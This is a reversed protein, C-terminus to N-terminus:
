CGTKSTNVSPNMERLSKWSDSNTVLQYLNYFINSSLGVIKGCYILSVISNIFWACFFGFLFVLISNKPLNKRFILLLVLIGILIFYAGARINLGLCLFLVGLFLDIHKRTKSWLVMFIFGFVGFALGFNETLLTGIFPRWFFFILLTFLAGALNGWSDKIFLISIAAILAILATQITLMVQLNGHTIRLMLSLIAPSLPRYTAMGSFHGGALFSQAGYYYGSADSFPLLGMLTYPESQGSAWLGSLPLASILVFFTIFFYKGSIGKIMFLSYAAIFIFIVISTIDYRFSLGIQRSLPFYFLILWYIFLLLLLYLFLFVFKKKNVFFKEL